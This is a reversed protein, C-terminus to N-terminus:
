TTFGLSWLPRVNEHFGDYNDRLVLDAKKSKKQAGGIEFKIGEVSFDADEDNKSAFVKKKLNHIQMCFFAERQNGILGQLASYTSPDSLFIKSGKTKETTKGEKKVITILYSSELVNLLNYVTPKSISWRNALSEINLTPIQSTLLHSIVNNM